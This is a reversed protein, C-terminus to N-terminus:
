GNAEMFAKVESLSPVSPQAGKRTTSIASAACAFRIADEIPHNAALHAALAGTFIDGAATSDISDVPYAPFLQTRGDILAAVGHKGLTVMPLPFGMKQLRALAESVNQPTVFDMGAIKAAEIENPKFINVLPPIDDPIKNQPVPAPDVIVFMGKKGAVRIAEYVTDERIEMGISLVDGACFVDEHEWIHKPLCQRNAGPCFLISNQGSRDVSIMAIGATHDPDILIGSTDIGKGSMYGLLEKSTSDTGLMGFYKVTGGLIAAAVAQNGGKGGPFTHFNDTVVTEAPAPIHDAYMVFDMNISGMCLVNGSLAM